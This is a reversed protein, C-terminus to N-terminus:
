VHARGIQGGSSDGKAPFAEPEDIAQQAPSSNAQEADTTDGSELGEPVAEEQQHAEEEDGEISAEGEGLAGVFSEPADPAEAILGEEQASPDQKSAASAAGDPAAADAALAPAPVMSVSLLAAFVASLAKRMRADRTHKGM